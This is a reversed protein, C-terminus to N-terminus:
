EIDELLELFEKAVGLRKKLFELAEDINDPTVEIEDDGIGTLSEGYASLDEPYSANPWYSLFTSFCIDLRYDGLNGSHDGYKKVFEVLAKYKEENTM